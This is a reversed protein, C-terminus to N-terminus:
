VRQSASKDDRPPPSLAQDNHYSNLPVQLDHAKAQVVTMPQQQQVLGLVQDFREVDSFPIVKVAPVNHMIQPQQKVRPKYYCWYWIVPATFDFGFYVLLCVNYMVVPKSIHAILGAILEYFFCAIALVLFGGSVLWLGVWWWSIHRYKLQIKLRVVISLIMLYIIMVLIAIIQLLTALRFPNHQLRWAGVVVDPILLLFVASITGIIANTLISRTLAGYRNRRLYLAPVFRYKAAPFMEGESTCFNHMIIQVAVSTTLTVIVLIKFWLGAQLGLLPNTAFKGSFSGLLLLAILGSLVTIGTLVLTTGRGINRPANAVSATLTTFASFGLFYGFVTTFCKIFSQFALPRSVALTWGHGHSHVANQILVIILVITIALGFLTITNLAKKIWPLGFCMLVMILWYIALGILDLFTTRYAGWGNVFDAFEVRTLGVILYSIVIPYFLYHFLLSYFSLFKGYWARIFLFYGGQDATHTQVAKKFAQAIFIAFAGNILLIWFFHYGVHLGGDTIQNFLYGLTAIKLLNFSYNFGYWTFSRLSLKQRQSRM